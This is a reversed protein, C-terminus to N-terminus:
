ASISESFLNPTYVIIPDVVEISKALESLKINIENLKTKYFQRLARKDIENTNISTENAEQQKFIQEQQEILGYVSNNYAEKEEDILEQLACLMMIGSEQRCGHNIYRQYAEQYTKKNYIKKLRVILQKGVNIKEQYDNPFEQKMMQLAEKASYKLVTNIM